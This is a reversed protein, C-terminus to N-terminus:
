QKYFLQFYRFTTKYERHRYQPSNANYMQFTYPTIQIDTWTNIYESTPINESEEEINSQDDGDSESSSDRDELPPDCMSPELTHNIMSDDSDFIGSQFSDEELVDYLNSSSTCPKLTEVPTTNESCM